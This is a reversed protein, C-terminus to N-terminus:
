AVSRERILGDLRQRYAPDDFDDKRFLPKFRYALRETLPKRQWALNTGRLAANMEVYPQFEANSWPAYAGDWPKLRGVFHIIAPNISKYVPLTMYSRLFNWRFSLKAIRGRCVHNLASQDHFKCVDPRAVLFDLAKPGIDNWTAPSAVMVGSNFYSTWQEASLGLQTLYQRKADVDPMGELSHLAMWDPVAGVAGEPLPLTLLETLSHHIQIDGDLYLIREYQKEELAKAVFMRFLAARSVHTKFFGEPVSKTLLSLLWDPIPRVTAGSAAEFVRKREPDLHDTELFIVVDASAPAHARAQKACVLSPFLYDEDCMLVICQRTSITPEQSITAEM